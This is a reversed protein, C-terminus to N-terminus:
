FLGGSGAGSSADLMGGRLFEDGGAATSSTESAGPTEAAPPSVPPADAAGSNALPDQVADAETFVPRADAAGASSGASSGAASDTVAAASPPPAGAATPPVVGRLRAAEAAPDLPTGAEPEQWFLIKNTLSDSKEVISATEEDVVQRIRTDAESAGARDLLVVEGPSAGLPPAMRDDGFVARAGAEQASQEQPGAAGPRPPRLNYNPPLVLPAKRMVAFEDPRNKSLGLQDNVTGCAALGLCALGIVAISRSCPRQLM